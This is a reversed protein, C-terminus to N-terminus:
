LLRLYSINAYHKCDHGEGGEHYPDECVVVVGRVLHLETLAEDASENKGDSDHNHRYWLAQWKSNCYSQGVASFLHIVIFARDSLQCCTLRHAISSSDTGVFCTRYTIKNKKSRNDDSFNM